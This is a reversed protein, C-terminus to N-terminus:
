DDGGDVGVGVGFLLLLMIKATGRLQMSGSGSYPPLSGISVRGSIDSGWFM